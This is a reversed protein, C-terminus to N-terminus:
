AGTLETKQLGGKLDALEDGVAAVAEIYQTGDEISKRQFVEWPARGKNTEYMEQLRGGAVALTISLFEGGWRGIDELAMGRAVVPSLSWATLYSDADTVM